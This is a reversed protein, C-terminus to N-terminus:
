PALIPLLQRQNSIITKWITSLIRYFITFLIEMDGRLKELLKESTEGYVESSFNDFGRLVAILVSKSGSSKSKNYFKEV